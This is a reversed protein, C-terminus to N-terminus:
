KHIEINGEFVKAAPGKLWINTYTGGKKELSVELVGGIAKIPVTAKQWQHKEALAIAAATIGTGCALTESEVGREFTRISYQGKKEEVFSVNTGAERYNWRIPAAERVMDTKSINDKFSIYHPSGTDIFYHDRYCATKEVDNMQLLVEANNGSKLVQAEHNGDSAKMVMNQSAMGQQFAFLAACRGGNGCMSGPLGDANYYKIKFDAETSPRISILGDAGVGFHRDCLWHILGTDLHLQIHYENILIFDNGAGQYKYFSIREM